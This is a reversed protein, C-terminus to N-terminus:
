CHGRLAQQSSLHTKCSIKRISMSHRVCTQIHSVQKTIHTALQLLNIRPPGEPGYKARLGYDAFGDVYRGGGRQAANEFGEKMGSGIVYM